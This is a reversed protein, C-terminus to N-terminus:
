ARENRHEPMDVIKCFPSSLSFNSNPAKPGRIPRSPLTVTQIQMIIPPVALDLMSSAQAALRLAPPVSNRHPSLNYGLDMQM